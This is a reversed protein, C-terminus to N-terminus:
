FSKEPGHTSTPFSISDVKLYNQDWMLIGVSSSPIRRGGAGGRRALAAAAEGQWKGGKWGGGGRVGGSQGSGEGEVGAAM